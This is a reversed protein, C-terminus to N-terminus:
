WWGETEEFEINLMESDILDFSVGAGGNFIQETGNPNITVNNSSSGCNVIRLKMGSVGSLLNITIAGSDTDAFIVTDSLTSLYPSDTNIIRTETYNEPQIGTTQLLSLIENSSQNQSETGKGFLTSELSTNTSSNVAEELSSLFRHWSVTLTDKETVLKEATSPINVRAAM